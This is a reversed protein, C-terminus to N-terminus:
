NDSRAEQRSTNVFKDLEPGYLDNVQIMATIYGTMYSPIDADMSSLLWSILGSRVMSMMRGREVEPWIKCLRDILKETEERTTM